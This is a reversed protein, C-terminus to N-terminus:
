FGKLVVFSSMDDQVIEVMVRWTFYSSLQEFYRRMPCSKRIEITPNFIKLISDLLSSSDFVNEQDCHRSNTGNKTLHAGHM